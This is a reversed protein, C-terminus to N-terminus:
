RTNTKLISKLWAAVTKLQAALLIAQNETGKSQPMKSIKDDLGIQQAINRAIPLSDGTLMKVSVGLDKLKTVTERSDDRVKDAVGALGVLQLGDEDTGQAVAIVRLGRASLAEAEGNLM